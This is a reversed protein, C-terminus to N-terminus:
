KSKELSQSENLHRKKMTYMITRSLNINKNGNYKRRYIIMGILNYMSNRNETIRNKLSITKHKIM